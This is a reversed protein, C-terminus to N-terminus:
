PFKAKLIQNSKHSQAREDIENRRHFLQCDNSNCTIKTLAIITKIGSVLFVFLKFQNPFKMISSSIKLNESAIWPKLRHDREIKTHM